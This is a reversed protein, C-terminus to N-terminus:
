ANLDGEFSPFLKNELAEAMFLILVLFNHNNFEMFQYFFESDKYVELVFLDRLEFSGFVYTLIIFFYM